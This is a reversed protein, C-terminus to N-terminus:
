KSIWSNMFEIYLTNWLSKVKIALQFNSSAKLSWLCSYVETMISRMKLQNRICYNNLKTEWYLNHIAKHSSYSVNMEIMLFDRRNHAITRYLKKFKFSKCSVKVYGCFTRFFNYNLTGYSKILLIWVFHPLISNSHLYPFGCFRLFNECQCM